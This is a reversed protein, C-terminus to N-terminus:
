PGGVAGLPNEFEKLSLGWMIAARPSEDGPRPRVGTSFQGRGLPNAATKDTADTGTIYRTTCRRVCGSGGTLGCGHTMHSRMCESGRGIGGFGGANPIRFRWFGDFCLNTPLEVVHGSLNAGGQL